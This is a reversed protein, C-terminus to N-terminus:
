FLTPGKQLCYSSEGLNVRLVFLCILRIVSPQILKSLLSPKSSQLILQHYFSPPLLYLPILRYLLLSPPPWPAEIRARESLPGGFFTDLM